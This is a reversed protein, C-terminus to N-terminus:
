PEIRTLGTIRDFHPDFSYVTTIRLDHLLAAHYADAFPLHSDVYLTFARRLRGKGPLLIGPLDLLPLLADRIEAPRRKYYRQLTFVTEFIVTDTLRVRVESQEIRLLLTSAKRPQEPPERVLHRLLVNTDLFALPSAM